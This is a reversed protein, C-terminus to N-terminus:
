KLPTPAAGTPTENSRELLAAYGAEFGGQDAPWMELFQLGMGPPSAAGGTDGWRKVWCVQATAVVEGQGCPPVLRVEILSQLPLSTLSRVYVGGLSANFTYGYFRVDSGSACFSVLGGYLLRASRRVGAPPPSLMENMLFTLGEPDAGAKLIRCMPRDPLSNMLRDAEEESAVVVWPPPDSGQGNEGVVEPLARGPLTVSAVVARHSGKALAKEMEEVTAAFYTDYGNRRLVNALRVRELRDPHALVVQGVPARVAGWSSERKVASVLATFQERVGDLYYDDLGDRFARAVTEPHLRPVRAIMPVNLLKPHERLHAVTAGREVCSEDFIVALPDAAVLEDRLGDGPHLRKASLASDKLTLLM